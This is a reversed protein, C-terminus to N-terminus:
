HIILRGHRFGAQERSLKPNIIPEVRTLILSELIKYPVCILSMPRYCKPDEEPTKPKPIAVVLARRWIKLIKLRHLCSSLLDCLWSNLGAGAHLILESCISDSGPAKDPKLHQLVATFNKIYFKPSIKEVQHQLEGSTLCRKLYSDLRRAILIRLGWYRVLQFSIADASESCHRSSHQLRSAFNNLISWAKHSSQSFDISQVAESWRDRRKRDLRTLLATVFDKRIQKVFSHLPEM